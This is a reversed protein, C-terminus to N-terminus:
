KSWSIKSLDIQFAPRTKYTITASNTRLRGSNAVVAFVYRSNDGDASRLSLNTSGQSTMQNWFMNWINTPTLTTNDTTMDTTVDLYDIIDQVSLVYCNRSISSGFIASSLSVEYNDESSLGTYGTTSDYNWSFLWSDQQFTKAVIANQMANSLSNYFTTNCYTDLDSNEYTQTSGFIQSTSADYMALVEAITGNMKLVRYQKSDLTIIDGKAPMSPQAVLNGGEIAWEYFDASVQQDTALTITQLTTTWSTTRRDYAGVSGGAAVYYSVTGFALDLDIVVKVYSNNNSQFDMLQTISASPLNLVDAWKYTGAALTKTSAAKTVQVAASPASDKFGDAKAVITISHAGASLNAWGALTSIDVSLRPKEINANFWAYFDDDVTQDTEVIITRLKTTDTATFVDWADAFYDDETWATVHRYTWEGTITGNIVDDYTSNGGLNVSDGQTEVVTASTASGYVNNATLPYIKYNFRGFPVSANATIKEKFVYTGSKLTAM